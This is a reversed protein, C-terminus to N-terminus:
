WESEWDAGIDVHPASHTLYGLSIGDVGTEAMERLNLPTIGGSAEVVVRHNIYAVARDVEHLSMNDLLIGDVGEQLAEDIQEFGDVEVEIFTGFPANQRVNKLVSKMGGRAAIHNDKILVADFLGFRHNYGGGTRVAYKEYVRQGPRTKRTDLIKVGLDSVLDVSERTITAIGSLWSLVNLVVREGTLLADVPGEVAALSESVGSHQGEDKFLEVKVLPSLISYVAMIIPLGSVAINQRARLLMRGYSNRPITLETTIDGHGIDERLGAEALQNWLYTQM